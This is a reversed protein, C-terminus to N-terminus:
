EPLRCIVIPDGDADKRYIQNICRGGYSCIHIKDGDCDNVFASHTGRCSVVTQVSQGVFSTSTFM